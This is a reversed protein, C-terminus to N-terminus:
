HDYIFVLEFGNSSSNSRHSLIFDLNFYDFTNSWRLFSLSYDDEWDYISILTLDNFIDIDFNFSLATSYRDEYDIFDNDSFLFYSYMTETLFIIPIYRNPISLDLGFSILDIRKLVEPNKVFYFSSEFWAGLLGDYRYDFGLRYNEKFSLISVLDEFTIDFGNDMQFNPLNSFQNLFHNKNENDLHYTFAWEGSKDSIEFRFGISPNKSSTDIAWFWFGYLNNPNFKLRISEVGKTRNTTNTFDIDDFWNLPRFIPSQGFSIKQLGIRIDLKTDTYRSWYRYRSGDTLINGGSYERELKYAFEFSIQKFNNINKNLSLKPIYAIKYSNIVDSGGSSGLWLQGSFTNSFLFGIYFFILLNVKM